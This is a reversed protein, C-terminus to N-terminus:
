ANDKAATRAQAEAQEPTHWAGLGQLAIRGGDENVTEVVAWASESNNVALREIGFPGAVHRYTSADTM